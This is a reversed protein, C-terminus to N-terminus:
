HRSPPPMPATTGTASGALAVLYDDYNIGYRRLNPLQRPQCPDFPQWPLKFPSLILSQVRQRPALLISLTPNAWDWAFDLAQGDQSAVAFPTDALRVPGRHSVLVGRWEGVFGTWQWTVAMLWLSQALLLSAGCCVLYHHRREFWAPWLLLCSALLLLAFPVLLQLSRLEYQREAGTDAPHLLPGVAWILMVWAFLAQELRFRSRTFGRGSLCVLAALVLWVFTWIMPPTPNLVIQSIGYKFGGLNNPCEPYCIGDLAILASAFLLLTAVALAGRAWPADGGRVIRLVALVALPPGLFFLSEYSFLLILASVILIVAALPKLPRAFAIAFLAPWFFAHAVNYEGVPMFGANLYGAACGLMALWFHRPALWWCFLLATPWPLFCGLGFALELAHLNTVGLHIATVTPLQYIFSAFDRNKALEAFNGAKLVATLQYSGDAYLCRLSLVSLFMALGFAGCAWRTLKGALAALAAPPVDNEAAPNLKM